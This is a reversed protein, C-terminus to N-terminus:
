GPLVEGNYKPLAEIIDNMLSNRGEELEQRILEFENTISDKITRGNLILDVSHIGQNDIRLIINGDSDTLIFEDILDESIDAHHVATDEVHSKIARAIAKNKVPNESTISLESDVATVDLIDSSLLSLKAKDEDTYDNSSLVKGEEQTVKSRIEDGVDVGNLSLKTTHVGENDVRLIINGKDDVVALENSAEESISPAGVLDDYNGSFLDQESIAQSIQTSVPETGILDSLEDIAENVAKNQVPNTSTASLEADIPINCADIKSNLVQMNNTVWTKIDDRLKQLVKILEM